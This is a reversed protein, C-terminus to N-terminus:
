ADATADFRHRISPRAVYSLPVDNADKVLEKVVYHLGELWETYKEDYINYLDAEDYNDVVSPDPCYLVKIAHRKAEELSYRGPHLPAITTEYYVLERRLENVLDAHRQRHTTAM